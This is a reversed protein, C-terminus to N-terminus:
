AAVETVYPNPRGTLSALLHAIMRTDTCPNSTQEIDGSWCGAVLANALAAFAEISVPRLRLMQDVRGHIEDLHAAIAADAATLGSLEDAARDAAEYAELTEVLEAARQVSPSDQPVEAFWREHGAVPFDAVTCSALGLRRADATTGAFAWLRVPKGRAAIKQIAAFDCLHGRRDGAAVFGRAPDDPVPDIPTWLLAEPMAPKIEDYRDAAANCAAAFELTLKDGAEIERWLRILEADDGSHATGAALAAAPALAAAAGATAAPTLFARRSAPSPTTSPTTDSHTAM